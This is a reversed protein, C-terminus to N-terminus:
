ETNFHKFEKQIKEQTCKIATRKTVWPVCIRQKGLRFNTAVHRQYYMFSQGKM